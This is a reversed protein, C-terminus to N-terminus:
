TPTSFFNCTGPTGDWYNKPNDITLNNSEDIKKGVGLGGSVFFITPDVASKSGHSCIGSLLTHFEAVQLSEPGRLFNKNSEVM